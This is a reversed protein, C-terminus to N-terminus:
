INENDDEETTWLYDSPEPNLDQCEVDYYHCFDYDYNAWDIEIFDWNEDFKCGRGYTKNLRRAIDVASEEDTYVAITRQHYDDTPQTQRVVWVYEKRKKWPM